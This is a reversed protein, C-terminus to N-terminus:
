PAQGGAARGAATTGSGSGRRSRLTELAVACLGYLVVTLYCLFTLFFLEELPLEPAVEVGLMFPTEGRYFIDLGIGFLDWTVFFALGLALTLAARGPRHWFFLKWRRDLLAMCGLAGLLAALYAFGM